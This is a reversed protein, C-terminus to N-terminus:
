KNCATDEGVSLLILCINNIGSIMALNPVAGDPNLLAFKDFFENSLWKYQQVKVLFLLPLKRYKQYSSM